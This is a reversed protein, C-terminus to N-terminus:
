CFGLWSDTIWPPVELRYLSLSLSSILDVLQMCGAFSTDWLLISLWCSLPPLICVRTLVWRFQVLDSSLTAYVVLIMFGLQAWARAHEPSWLLWCSTFRYAYWSVPEDLNTGCVLSLFLLVFGLLLHLFWPQTLPSWFSGSGFSRGLEWSRCTSFRYGLSLLVFVRIQAYSLLPYVM